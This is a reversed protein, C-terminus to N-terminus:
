LFSQLDVIDIEKKFDSLPRKKLKTYVDKNYEEKISAKPGWFFTGDLRFETKEDPLFFFQWNKWICNRESPPETFPIKSDSCLVKIGETYGESFGHVFVSSKGFMKVYFNAFHDAHDVVKQYAEEESLFGDFYSNALIPDKYRAVQSTIISKINNNLAKEDSKIGGPSSDYAAKYVGCVYSLQYNSAIICEENKTAKALRHIKVLRESTAEILYNFEHTQSSTTIRKIM